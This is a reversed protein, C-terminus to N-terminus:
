DWITSQALGRVVRKRLIYRAVVAGSPMTARETVIEEDDRILRKADYIRAGLRFSGILDLADLPTLGRDGRSRLEAIVRETQTMTQSM